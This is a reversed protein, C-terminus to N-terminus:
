MIKQYAQWWRNPVELNCAQEYDRYSCPVLYHREFKSKLNVPCPVEMWWRDSKKNKYFIIDHHDGTSVVYKQADSKQKVPNENKRNCYGEILYWIMQAILHATTENKDFLPNYEYFGISTLKDSIGAYRTIQCAEEGYFGNPSANGNGPADSQRIASVDFSLMDANRVMPEVEQLDSRVMGLRYVDFFLNQMLSVANPDVFYSQYGINTFNFLFNPKHTIIKTLYTKSSMDDETTGIDFSSDVQVINIIQGLSEYALYNAFTLDQSGGIIVPLIGQHMLAALVKSLAFYTDNVTHGSIINGLDAIKIKNSPLFLDYLYKRIVDVGNACGENQIAWREEKVGILAIHIHDLDPFSGKASYITMSKGLTKSKAGYPVTDYHQSLPELYLQIDM